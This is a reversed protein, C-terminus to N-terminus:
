SERVLRVCLEQSPASVKDCQPISPSTIPALLTNVESWANIQVQIHQKGRQLSFINYVIM